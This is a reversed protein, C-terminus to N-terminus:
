LTLQSRLRVTGAKSRRVLSGADCLRVVVHFGTRIDDGNGLLKEM